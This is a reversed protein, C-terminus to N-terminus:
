YEHRLYWDVCNERIDHIDGDDKVMMNVMNLYLRFCNVSIILLKNYKGNIYACIFKININGYVKIEGKINLISCGNYVNYINCCSGNKGSGFKM